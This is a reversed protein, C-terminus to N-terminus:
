GAHSRTSWDHTHNTKNEVKLRQQLEVIEKDAAARTSKLEAELQSVDLKHKMREQHIDTSDKTYQDRVREAEAQMDALKMRAKVWEKKEAELDAREKQTAEEIAEEISDETMERALSDIGTSNSSYALPFDTQMDFLLGEPDEPTGAYVKLRRIPDEKKNDLEKLLMAYVALDDLSDPHGGKSFNNCYRALKGVIQTLVAFRGHDESSEIVLDGFLASAVAGYEKYANSGYQGSRQRHLEILATFAEEVFRSM